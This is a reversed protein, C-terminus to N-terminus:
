RGVEICGSDAPVDKKKWLDRLSKLGEKPDIPDAKKMEFKPGSFEQNKVIPKQGKFKWGNFAPNKKVSYNPMVFSNDKAKFRGSGRKQRFRGEANPIFALGLGLILFLVVIKKMKM